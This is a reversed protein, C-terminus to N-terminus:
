GLRGYGQPAGGLFFLQQELTLPVPTEGTRLVAWAVLRSMKVAALLAQEYGRCAERKQALQVCSTIDEHFVAMLM